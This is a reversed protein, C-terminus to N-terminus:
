HTFIWSGVSRFVSFVSKTRGIRWNGLDGRGGRFFFVVGLCLIIIYPTCIFRELRWGWGEFCNYRPGRDLLAGALTCILLPFPLAKIAGDLINSPSQQLSRLCKKPIDLQPGNSAPPPPGFIYKAFTCKPSHFFIIAPALTSPNYVYTSHSRNM